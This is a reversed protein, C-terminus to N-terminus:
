PGTALFMQTHPGFVVQQQAPHMQDPSCQELAGRCICGHGLDRRPTPEPLAAPESALVLRKKSLRRGRRECVRHSLRAEAMHPSVPGRHASFAEAHILAIIVLSPSSRNM